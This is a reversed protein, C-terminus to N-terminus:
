YQFLKFNLQDSGIMLYDKCSLIRDTNMYTSAFKKQYPELIFLFTDESGYFPANSEIKKLM